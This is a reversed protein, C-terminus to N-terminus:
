KLGSLGKSLSNADLSGGSAPASAAVSTEAPAAAAAGSAPKEAFKGVYEVKAAARLDKVHKRLWEQRRTESLYREILPKSQDFTLPQPRSAAVLIAKMGGNGQQYLAQGDKLAAIRDVLNLPLNEAPQTVQSVAFKLGSAKLAEVFAQTSGAATLQAELAKTEEASGQITFEQLMYLRRESFLSPKSDFYKKVDEASPAGVAGGVAKQMYAQALTARRQADLLQVIKPDRDLKGEIAKEVAIQQDILGELLQRSALDAQEPKLGPQRELMLNIQHVTLEEGNVKAAAQSAGKEGEKDGGCGALLAAAVLAPVLAMRAVAFKRQKNYMVSNMSCYVFTSSSREFCHISGNTRM